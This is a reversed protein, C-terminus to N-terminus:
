MSAEEEKLIANEEDTFVRSNMIFHKNETNEISFTGDTGDAVDIILQTHKWYEFQSKHMYFPTDEDLHGLLVDQSGIYFGDEEFCMPVSGECCGGSQHFLIGGHKEKLFEILEKAADTAVVRQVMM